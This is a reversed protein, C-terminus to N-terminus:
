LGADMIARAVSSRLIAYGYNLLNNPPTGIRDRIFQMGFLMQWYIKAAVGERNTSDGSKVRTHYRHLPDDGFGLKELLASQNRIKFEVIQKRIQKCLPKGAELQAGFHKSQLVNSELDMLMTVPM